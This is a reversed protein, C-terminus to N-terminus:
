TKMSELLDSLEAILDLAENKLNKGQQDRPRQKSVLARYRGNLRAYKALKSTKKKSRLETLLEQIADIYSRLRINTPTEAMEVTKSKQSKKKIRTGSKGNKKFKSLPSELLDLFQALVSALEIGKPTLKVYKTRGKKNAAVIGQKEMFKILNFTHAYTAGIDSSIESVYKDGESLTLLVQKGREYFFIDKM